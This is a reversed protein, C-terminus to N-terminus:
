QICDEKDEVSNNDICDELDDIYIKLAKTDNKLEAIEDDRSILTINLGDITTQLSKIKTSFQTYGETLNAEQQKLIARLQELEASTANIQNNFLALQETANEHAQQIRTADGKYHFVLFLLGLILLGSIIKGLVGSFSSSGRPLISIPSSPQLKPPQTSFDPGKRKLDEIQKNITELEKRRKRDIWSEVISM